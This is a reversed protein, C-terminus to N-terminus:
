SWLFATADTWDCAKNWPLLKNATQGMDLWHISHIYPRIRRSVPIQELSIVISKDACLCVCNSIWVGAVGKFYTWIRNLRFFIYRLKQKQAFRDAPSFFSELGGSDCAAGPLRSAQLSRSEQPKVYVVSSVSPRLKPSILPHRSLSDLQKVNSLRSISCRPSFFSVILIKLLSWKCYIIM